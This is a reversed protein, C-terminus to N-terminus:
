KQSQNPTVMEFLQDYEALNRQMFGVIFIDIILINSLCRQM